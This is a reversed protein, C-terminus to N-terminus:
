FLHEERSHVTEDGDDTTRAQQARVRSVALASGIGLVFAGAIGPAILLALGAPILAAYVLLGGLISNALTESRAAHMGRSQEVSTRKMM